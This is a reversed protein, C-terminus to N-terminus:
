NLTLVTPTQAAWDTCSVTYLIPASDHTLTIQYIYKKGKEWVQALAATKTGEYVVQDGITAKYTISLTANEGSGSLDQPPVMLYGGEATIATYTSEVSSTTHPHGAAFDTSILAYDYDTKTGSAATTGLAFTYTVTPKVDQISMASIEYKVDAYSGSTIELEKGKAQVEIQSLIHEFNLAVTGTTGYTQAEACAAIIDKQAAATAAVTYVITPRNSADAPNNQNWTCSENYAYFSLSESPSTGLTTSPWYYLKSTQWADTLVESSYKLTESFFVPASTAAGITTANLQFAKLNFQTAQLTAGTKIESAKTAKHMFSDFSIAQKSVPTDIFSTKTCSAFMMAVAATLIFFKKM